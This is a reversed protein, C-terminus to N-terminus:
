EIFKLIIDYIAPDQETMRSIPKDDFYAKKEKLTNLKKEKILRYYEGIWANMTKLADESYQPNHKKNKVTVVQVNPNGLRIAQGANYKYNVVPDDASHIWLLKDGTSAIYAANDVAGFSPDLKKEYKKVYNALFRVKVIGMMEDAISVFGSIIVARKVDPDINAVTLATYGGLSHGVPIIEGQPKLFELLELADKPPANVSPMSEGGSDGCGTYDLTLVPFGARCLMEIESLYPTHGPGMGPCFLIRKGPRYGEYYYTFYKINVGASNDFSGPECVLGPFDGCSYYPIAEDKDYRKYFSDKYKKLFAGM